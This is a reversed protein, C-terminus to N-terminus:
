RLSDPQRRVSGGLRAFAVKLLGTLAQKRRDYSNIPGAGRKRAGLLVERASAEHQAFRVEFWKRKGMSDAFRRAAARTAATCGCSDIAALIVAGPPTSCGAVADPSGGRESALAEGHTRERSGGRNSSLQRMLSAVADRMAIMLRPCPTM